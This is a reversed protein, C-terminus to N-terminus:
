KGRRSLMNRYADHLGELADPQIPRPSWSFGGGGRLYGNLQQRLLVRGRHLRTRVSEPTLELIGATDETSFEEIDRLLVVPRYTEPLSQIARALADQLESTLLLDEPLANCDAIEVARGAGEETPKLEDLSVEMAPAFVSKRRKMLCQNKAIRFVWSKLRDPDQLQDVSEFVKMLTEQAVEEADERQGCMLFSYQALRARFAHVFETFAAEDGSLLDRAIESDTRLAPPV